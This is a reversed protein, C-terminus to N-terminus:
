RQPPPLLLDIVEQTVPQIPAPLESNIGRATDGLQQVPAASAPPPPAPVPETGGLAPSGGGPPSTDGSPPRAEREFTGDPSSVAGAGAPGAVAVGDVEADSSALEVTTDAGVIDTDAISAQSGLSTGSDPVGPGSVLQGLDTLGSFGGGAALAVMAGILALPALLSVGAAGLAQRLWTQPLTM